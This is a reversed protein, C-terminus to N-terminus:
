AVLAHFKGMILVSEKRTLSRINDFPDTIQDLTKTVFFVCFQTVNPELQPIHFVECVKM